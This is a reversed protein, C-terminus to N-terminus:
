PSQSALGPRWTGGVQNKSQAGVSCQRVSDDYRGPSGCCFLSNGRSSALEGGVGEVFSLPPMWKAQRAQGGGVIRGKKRKKGKQKGLKIMYGPV